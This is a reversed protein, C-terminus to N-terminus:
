EINTMPIRLTVGSENESPPWNSEEAAAIVRPRSITASPASMISIPPSDVRGPACRVECSCSSSLVIGTTLAKASCPTTTEISVIRASTARAATAAPAVYM